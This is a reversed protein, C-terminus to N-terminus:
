KHNEMGACRACWTATATPNDVASRCCFKADRLWPAPFAAQERTYPNSGVDTATVVM